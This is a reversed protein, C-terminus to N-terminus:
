AFLYIELLVSLKPLTVRDKLSYKKLQPAVILFVEFQQAFVGRLVRKCFIEWLHNSDFRVSTKLKMHAHLLINKCCMNIFVKISYAAFRYLINVGVFFSTFSGM